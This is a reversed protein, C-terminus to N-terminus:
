DNSFYRSHQHQGSKQKLLQLMVDNALSSAGFRLLTPHLWEQGLVELILAIYVLAQKTTSIGGSPKIGVYKGTKLMFAYIAELMIYVVEPRASVSSKGTSTKIFDAGAYLAIDAAKRIQGPRDLEGTELIVKLTTTGCISKVKEIEKFVAQYKGELFLKRNIVMDIEDAGQKLCWELEKCRLKFPVQAAPFATSVSAVRVNTGRTIRKAQAIHIPYVCVAATQWQMAKQCLQVVRQETDKGELSTLDICNLILDLAQIKFAGKFSRSAISHVREKLMVPEITSVKPFRQM